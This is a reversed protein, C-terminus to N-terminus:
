EQNELYELFQKKNFYHEGGIGDVIIRPFGKADARPPNKSETIDFGNSDVSPDFLDMLDEKDFDENYYLIEHELNQDEIISKVEECHTCGHKSYVTIFAM